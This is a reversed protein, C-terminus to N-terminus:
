LRRCGSRGGIYLNRINQTKLFPSFRQWSLPGLRQNCLCSMYTNQCVDIILLLYKISYNYKSLGQVDLDCEWVDM